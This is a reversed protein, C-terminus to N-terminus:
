SDKDIPYFLNRRGSSKGECDTIIWAPYDAKKTNLFSIVDIMIADANSRAQTSIRTLEKDTLPESYENTKRVVSFATVTIQGSLIYRSYAYYAVATKMGAFHIENGATNNYDVGTLLDQYIQGSLNKIMDHYFVEGLRPKIDFMQAEMIYPQIRDVANINASLQKIAKIDDLSIILTENM